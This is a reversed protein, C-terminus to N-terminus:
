RLALWLWCLVVVMVTAPFSYKIYKEATQPLNDIVPVIAAVFIMTIIILVPEFKLLRALEIITSAM